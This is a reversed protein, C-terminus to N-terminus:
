QKEHAKMREAKFTNMMEETLSLGEHYDPIDKYDVWEAVSLENEDMRVQDDGDLDCYYGLLLDSDFGWPQSKYYTINKVKVGVEEMVERAVTEEVTEGIETFGAILAYRKYARGAYKTMMLRDGDRLGVIVAPVLRPFILNGCAPCKVMREKMDHVTRTGCVGCFRSTHYWRYIHWATAGAFVVDKPEMRRLDYMKYYGYRCEMAMDVLSDLHEKPMDCLFYHVGGIAFIYRCEPAEIGLLKSVKELEQYTMYDAVMKEGNVASQETDLTATEKIVKVLIENGRFIVVRDEMQPQKEEYQNQLFHPGIDQIM